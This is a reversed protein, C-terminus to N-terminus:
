LLFMLAALGPRWSVQDKYAQSVTSPRPKLLGSTEEPLQQHRHPSRGQQKTGQASPKHHNAEERAPSMLQMLEPLTQETPTIFGGPVAAPVPASSRPSSHTDWKGRTSHERHQSMKIRPTKVHKIVSFSRPLRAPTSVVVWPQPSYTQLAGAIAASPIWFSFETSHPIRGRVLKTKLAAINGYFM